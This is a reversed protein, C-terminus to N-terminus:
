KKKRFKVRLFICMGCAIGTLLMFIGAAMRAKEMQEATPEIEFSGTLFWFVGLLFCPLLIGIGINCLVCLMKHKKM